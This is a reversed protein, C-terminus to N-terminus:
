VAFSKIAATVVGWIEVTQGDQPAIDAFAPNAAKLRVQTGRQHLTKCVFDGDIVAVVIHGHRPVVARDVLLADGDFIGADRMSDGRARMLFTAQPHTILRESLDIRRAGLDQAPSPFGARVQTSILETLQAGSLADVALTPPRAPALGPPQKLHAPSPEVSNM